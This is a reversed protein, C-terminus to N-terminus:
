PQGSGSLLRSVLLHKVDDIARGALEAGALHLLEQDQGLEAPLRRRLDAVEKEFAALLGEDCDRRGISRILGSLPDDVGLGGYWEDLPTTAWDVREVWVTGGSLDTAQARLENKWREQDALLSRHANCRGVVRVRLALTRGDVGALQNRLAISFRDLIAEGDEADAALVECVEWRVVDLVRHEVSSIRGNDVTVLCCGKPGAERIHRGQLNGCFVIWPDEHLIERTHVHGLAWYDYGKSVLQDVRCPAYPDHGERGDACTHLLGINFYGPQPGPYGVSLDDTVARTAFSQGHIAVGVSDLVVTEPHDAGLLRVNEPLRLSKTIQSAADHNGAIVFVPISAERLQSMQRSFYLGTNYDRWDGDYLDGSILVFAVRESIALQVLNELARRTAGRIREIPAGEYCELNRLPSDLHIDSAHLYRFM